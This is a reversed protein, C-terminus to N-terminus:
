KIYKNKINTLLEVEDELQKQYDAASVWVPKFGFTAGFKAFEPAMTVAGGVNLAFGPVDGGTVM